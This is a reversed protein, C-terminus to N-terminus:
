AATDFVLRATGDDAFTVPIDNGLLARELVQTFRTAEDLTLSAFAAGISTGPFQAVDTQLAAAVLIRMYEEDGDWHMHLCQAAATLARLIARSRETYKLNIFVPRGYTVSESVRAAVWSRQEDPLVLVVARAAQRDEENLGLGDDPRRWDPRVVKAVRVVEPVPASDQEGFPISFETEAGVVVAEITNLQTSDHHESQKLTPVDAPWNARL